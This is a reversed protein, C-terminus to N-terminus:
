NNMATLFLDILYIPIANITPKTQTFPISFFLALLLHILNNTEFRNEFHYTLERKIHILLSYIDIINGNIKVSDVSVNISM